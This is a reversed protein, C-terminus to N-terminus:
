ISSIIFALSMNQSLFPPPYPNYIGEIHYSRYQQFSHPSLITPLSRLDRMQANTHVTHHLQCNKKVKEMGLNQNEIHFDVVCDEEESKAM